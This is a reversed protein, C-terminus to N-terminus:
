LNTKTFEIPELVSEYEKNVAEMDTGQLFLTDAYKKSVVVHASERLVRNLESLPISVFSVSGKKRGRTAM